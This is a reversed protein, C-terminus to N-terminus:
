GGFSGGSRSRGGFGGRSAVTSRTVTQPVPSRNFAEGSFRYGRGGRSLPGYYSGGHYWDGTSRNRYLAGYRRRRSADGIEDIVNGIVFGALLPTWFSGTAGSSAFRQECAANGFEQECLERSEFRPATLADDSQAQAWADQCESQSFQNDAVCESVTAYVQGEADPEAVGDGCGAVTATGVATLTTLVVRSSRKLKRQESM